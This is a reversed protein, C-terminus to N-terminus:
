AAETAAERRRAGTTARRAIEVDLRAIVDSLSRPPPVFGTQEVLAQATGEGGQPTVPKEPTCAQLLLAIALAVLPRVPM